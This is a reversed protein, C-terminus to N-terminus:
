NKLLERMRSRLASETKAEPVGNKSITVSYYLADRLKRVQQVYQNADTATIHDGKSLYEHQVLIERPEATIRRHYRIASNEIQLTKDELQWNVDSTLSYRIRHVVNVGPEIALPMRRRTTGPVRAYQDITDGYLMLEQRDGDTNWFNDISFHAEITLQNLAKDDHVSPTGQIDAGPYQRRYGQELETSYDKLGQRDLMRRFGEASEGELKLTLALKVAQGVEGLTIHEDSYFLNHESQPLTVATLGQSDAKVVLAQQYYQVGKQSLPGYQQARTGDIWYDQNDLRVLTIVHDFVGPNPLRSAIGAGQRSSVLAPYAEIGGYRLLTLMLTTKDKCDGYKREFVLNPSYPQHSNLGIEIGFYRIQNQVYRVVQSVYEQQTAAQALWNDALATLDAVLPEDFEYLPKAWAVVDQWNKFESVELYSYPDYWAPYDGEDQVAAIATQQWVYSTHDPHHTVQWNFQSANSHHYLESKLDTVLRVRAFQVAVGWNLRFFASRKNQYIPNTGVVTYGYDIRDGVQVDSLLVMASVVGNYIKRDTENERQVLRIDALDTIDRQQGDRTLRIFHLQLQQYDPAFHMAFESVDELGQRSNAQMAVHSYAVYNGQRLSLQEDVLIYNVGAQDSSMAPVRIQEELPVTWEPVATREYTFGNSTITAAIAPGMLSLLWLYFIVRM